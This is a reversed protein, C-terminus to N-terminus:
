FYVRQYHCMRTSSSRKSCIGVTLKGFGDYLTPWDHHKDTGRMSLATVLVQLLMEITQAESLAFGFWAYVDWEEKSAWEPDNFM